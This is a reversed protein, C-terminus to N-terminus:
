IMRGAVENAAYRPLRITATTGHGVQSRFQLWGGHNRIITDSISLGLGTGSNDRKTTFFPDKIREMIEPPMGAGTDSVRLMIEESEELYRTSVEISNEKEGAAQCANMILNIVVQGLRQSNGLLTPLNDDLDVTFDSTAKGILGSLLGVSTSVVQNLSVAECRESPQQRSFEKLDGVIRRVRSVGEQSYYLLKPMRERLQPYTMGRIEISGYEAHYRDLIPQTAQWFREYVQLNLMVSSIPNNIEHAVGAVLTGLAVMKDTQMLQEQRMKAETEARKKDTIDRATLLFIPQSEPTDMKAFIAEIPIVTDDATIFETELLSTDNADTNVTDIKEIFAQCRKDPVISLISTGTLAELSYRCIKKFATNAYSIHLNHDLLLIMERATETLLKYRNESNLLSVEMQHRKNEASTTQWIFYLSLSAIIALIGLFIFTMYHTIAAIQNHIDEVYVGTGIIWHWPKYEQVYSIKAYTQSLDNPWQWDYSVYGAGQKRVTDVFLKFIKVGDPDTVDAINKGVLDPRYPHMIMRPYTDNIWFYDKNNPGYRLHSLLDIARAKAQGITLRGEEALAGYHRIMSMASESLVHVTERKRELLHKEMQPLVIGFFIGIFLLMTLLVPLFIRVPFNRRLSPKHFGNVKFLAM